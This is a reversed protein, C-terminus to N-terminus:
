PTVTAVSVFRCDQGRGGQWKGSVRIRQRHQTASALTKEDKASAALWVRQGLGIDFDFMIQPACPQGQHFAVRGVADFHSGTSVAAQKLRAKPEACSAVANLLTGLALCVVIKRM